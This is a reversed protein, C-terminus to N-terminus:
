DSPRVYQAARIVDALEEARKPDLPRLRDLIRRADDLRRLKVYAEGLYELAEPFEPRRRLAEDYAALSDEYRGLNRLAYGLESWAEPFDARLFLANRFSAEAAAWDGTIRARIGRNYEGEPTETAPPQRVDEVAPNTPDAFAPLVWLSIALVVLAIQQLGSM